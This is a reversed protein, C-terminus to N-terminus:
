PSQNSGDHLLLQAPACAASATSSCLGVLVIQKQQQQAENEQHGCVADDSLKVRSEHVIQVCLM